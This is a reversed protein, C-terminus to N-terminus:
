DALSAGAMCCLAQRRLGGAQALVVALMEPQLDAWPSHELSARHRAPLLLPSAAQSQLADADGAVAEAPAATDPDSAPAAPAAAAVTAAAAATACALEDQWSLSTARGAVSWLLQQRPECAGGQPEHAPAAPQLPPRVPPSASHQGVAQQEAHRQEALQECSGSAASSSAQRQPTGPAAADGAAAQREAGAGASRRLLRQQLQLQCRRREQPSCPATSNNGVAEAQWSGALCWSKGRLHKCAMQAIRQHLELETAAQLVLVAEGCVQLSHIPLLPPPHQHLAAQTAPPM